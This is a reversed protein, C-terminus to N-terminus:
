PTAGKQPAPITTRVEAVTVALTYTGTLDSWGEVSVYHNGSRLAPWYIRSALTDAHDDNSELWIGDHDYLSAVSDPLTGLKVDIQYYRGREAEFVFYDVDDEHQVEGAAAEGVAVPTAQELSDAHDDGAEERPVPSPGPASDGFRVEWVCDELRLGFVFSESWESGEPGAEVGLAGRGTDAILDSFCSRQEETLEDLAVGVDALVFEIFLDPICDVLGFFVSNDDDVANDSEPDPPGVMSAVDVDALLDRVCSREDMGIETSVGEGADAILSAIIIELFLERATEPELCSFIRAMPEGMDDESLVPIDLMSELQDDDFADRICAQESDAFVDFVERLTTDEDIDFEGAAAPPEPVATPAAPAETAAPSPEPAATPAAPAETAVFESMPTGTVPPERASGGGCAAAAATLALIGLIGSRRVCRSVPSM